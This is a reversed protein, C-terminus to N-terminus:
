DVQLEQQTITKEWLLNGEKDYTQLTLVRENRPGDIRLMGFNREKYVLTGEVRQPNDFEDSENLTSYNGASLPSSTFEHLPYLGDREMKLMETFHRDGSLFVVGEIEEEKLFNMLEEFENTYNNVGENGNMMNITQNGVAIFKFSAYSNALSEKLWQLQADGFYPKDEDELNNPARHYRDDMLFFEVDNYLYRTFVGDTSAIGYGPNAWYRKFIDLAEERMRYTRDANNPGYDHDDWTALNITSALLPQMEPISRALRYRNNMQAKSYFDVERYYVNDGMWLMIDPNQAAVSELIAPDGGYPDGPRDFEPDNIYLCSGMAVSFAPPDTRWQWLKQTTFQTPYDFRLREGNIFIAYQYTTGPQLGTINLHATLGTQETTKTVPGILFADENGEPWYNISVEAPKTTQVWITTEMMETAGVMPGAELLAQQGFIPTSLIFTILFASLLTAFRKLKM